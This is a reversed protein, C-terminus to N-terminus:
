AARAPAPGATWRTNMRAAMRDVRGPMSRVYRRFTVEPSQHGLTEALDAINAGSAAEESAFQHRLNHAHWGEDLGMQRALVQLRVAATDYRLYPTRPGPCVPGPPLAQVMNWVYDPVPIDRGEGAPRHKLAVLSKGDDAAQWRLEWVKSGDERETFDSTAAGLAEGIRAGCCRMLWAAVGLGQLTRRHSRGNKDTRTVKIGDALIRAQADTVFVWPANAAAWQEATLRRTKLELGTIAHGPIVRRRVALDLTGRIMRLVNTRYDRSRALCAVNILEEVEADMRAVTAVPLDDLMRAAGSGRYNSEYGKLSDASVDLRAAYQRRVDGFRAVGARPDVFLAGQTVKKMSLDAQFVQAETLTAFSAERQRSNVSYRVTWKHPCDQVQWPECTHQCSGAACAKRTQPRHIARDCKKLITAQIIGSANQLPKTPV